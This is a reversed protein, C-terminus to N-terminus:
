IRGYTTKNQIIDQTVDSSDDLWVPYKHEPARRYEVSIWTTKTASYLL